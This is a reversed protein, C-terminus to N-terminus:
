YKKRAGAGLSLATDVNGQFTNVLGEYIVLEAITFSAIFMHNVKNSSWLNNTIPGLAGILLPLDCWNTVDAFAFTKTTAGNRRATFQAFSGDRIMTNQGLTSDPTTSFQINSNIADYMDTGLNSSMAFSGVTGGTGNSGFDASNGANTTQYVGGCAQSLTITKRHILPIYGTDAYSKNIASWQIGIKDAVPTNYYQLKYNNANVLNFSHQELCDASVTKDTVRPYCIELKNFLNNSVLAYYFDIVANILNTDTFNAKSFYLALPDLASCLPDFEVKAM